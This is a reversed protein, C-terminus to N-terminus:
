GFLLFAMVLEKSRPLFAIVSRSLTNFLLSLIKGIFTQITLATTKGTTVYSESFQVMFFASCQLISAKSNHHQLLSKLTAQVALLDFWDIKFFILGSYENCPSVSFSFSFSWYKPWRIHLVSENSFVRIRPFISPLFLLPCCLIVDGVRHVHTQAFEPLQHHVPFGPMSCDMPYCLTLCSRTVPSVSSVDARRLDRNPGLNKAVREDLFSAQWTTQLILSHLGTNREDYRNVFLGELPLLLPLLQPPTQLSQWGSQKKRLVLNWIVHQTKAKWTLM